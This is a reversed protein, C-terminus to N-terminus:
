RQGGTAEIISVGTTVKTNWLELAFLVSRLVPAYDKNFDSGLDAVMDDAIGRPNKEHWAAVAARARALDAPKDERFRV